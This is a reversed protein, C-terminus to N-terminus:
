VSEAVKRIADIVTGQEDETMTPYLPIILTSDSFAETNPLPGRVFESYAEERHVAMIGRLSAVGRQRLRAMFADRDGRVRIPFSQYNAATHSEDWFTEVGDIEQFNHHYVDALKRRRNLVQRIKTMQGVAVAAHIDSMRYNYGTEAYREVKVGTATHRSLADTSASQNRLQRLREEVEFDDGTIVGGEGCTLLKRPHFSFCAFEGHPMGIRETYGDESIIESGLACAADEIVQISGIDDALHVIDEMKAPYGMQHVPMIFRTKETFVEQITDATINMTHPGIDAFVPVGGAHIVANATAIFTLSPIIVEDGPQIELVLLSLHLAATCSNVAVAWESRCFGSMQEEFTEVMSGQVLWGSNLPEILLTHEVNTIWPKTVPILNDSM